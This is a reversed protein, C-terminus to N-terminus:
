FPPSSTNQKRATTPLCTEDWGSECIVKIDDEKLALDLIAVEDIHGEVPWQETNWPAVGILLPQDNAGIPKDRASMREVEKAALELAGSVVADDHGTGTLRRQAYADV